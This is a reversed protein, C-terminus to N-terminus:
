LSIGLRKILARLNSRDMGLLRAAENRNGDSQRLAEIILRRRFRDVSESYKVRNSLIEQVLSEEHTIQSPFHYTQIQQGEEALVAARRVANRLERINGPWSYNQLMELVGPAFGGFERDTEQLFHEALLLADEVRERLPPIHIPFESLRYYLDERFRGAAVDEVLDRNTIAIIQVDVDRSINEGLRQIRNEQLVRLLHVQADQPMEGIEDLLLTGGSAAEFLGIKDETAGTFAGKRHGFLDSALLDKPIAGCNRDRLPKDKRPGNYHIAKAVLEKGTGTEGTVLVVQKLKSDIAREMLARVLKIADSSGIISDFRYKGSTEQRLYNLEALVPDPQVTLNLVASESYNLDRDIAQVRFIYEGPKLDEYRVRRERTAKSWDTDIGDLRYIYKIRDFKTKFSLGKYEFIVQSASTEISGPDDYVRDATVQTLRVRPKVIQAPPIYRTVRNPSAFWLNGAKDQVIQRVTDHALGDRTTISQFNRGDYKCVGGGNTGFWFYGEEDQLVSRINKCPLGEKVTLTRFSQGDYCSVGGRTAFWLRGDRDEIISRVHNHALGDRTTFTVFRDGDYRSAGDMTGFWLNSNRDEAISWVHNHALGNKRTFTVFRDGDYRSVGGRTAFWLCGGSDGAISWIHNGALGDRKNFTVFSIGDTPCVEMRSVGGSYTGFWLCGERDAAISRVDNHTLGDERTLSVFKGGDYRSVGSPTGFWLNGQEDEVITRVDNHALGDEVAFTVFSGRDYRSVGSYTGFWLNGERDELISAVRNDALGDEITSTLFSTGDYRSVGGSYTGFWLNGERDEIISTVRNDALGDKATFNAFGNGDYRSVGGDYTGFWFCGERDELVSTVRRDALGDKVTLNMFSDGNYRSVGSLYNGFWLCGERDELISTILDTALGDKTTFNVFSQGDYRSVGGGWTGFWLNGKRDQLIAWVNNCPLGDETTFTVFSQGDYRSVGGEVNWGGIGFWLNGARDELIAKVCNGALGDETTFNTFSQGDYRSVGGDETGFWLYGGSDELIALVNVDPLGDILAYSEWHGRRM